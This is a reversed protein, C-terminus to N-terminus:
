QKHDAPLLRFAKGERTRIARFDREGVTLIRDIRLREATAAVAAGCLGLKLDAYTELLARSRQVDEPLFPEIRFSGAMVDALFQLLAGTGLWAALMYGLEGLLPAPLYITEPIRELFSRVSKHHRDRSDYLAFVGGSDAVIAM